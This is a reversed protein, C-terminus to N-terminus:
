TTIYEINQISYIRHSGYIDLSENNPNDRLNKYRAETGSGILYKTTYWICMSRNQITNDTTDCPYDLIINESPTKYYYLNSIEDRIESLNPIYTYQYFGYLDKILYWGPYNQTPNLTLQFYEPWLPVLHDSDSVFGGDVGNLIKNTTQTVELWNGIMNSYRSSQNSVCEQMENLEQSQLSGGGLFGHWIVNQYSKTLSSYSPDINEIFEDNFTYDQLKTIPYPNQFRSRYPIKELPMDYGTSYPIPTYSGDFFRDFIGDSVFISELWDKLINWNDISENNNELLLYTDEQTTIFSVTDTGSHGVWVSGRPERWNCKKIYKQDNYFTIQPYIPYNPQLQTNYTFGCAYSSNELQSQDINTSFYSDDLIAKNTSLDIGSIWPAPTKLGAFTGNPNVKYLGVGAPITFPNIIKYQKIQVQEEDTLEIPRDNDDVFEYIVYDSLINQTNEISRPKIKKYYTENNKGLFRITFTQRSKIPTYGIFHVCGLIHRKSIIFWPPHGNNWNHISLINDYFQVGNNREIFEWTWGANPNNTDILSPPSKFIKPPNNITIWDSYANIGWGYSGRMNHLPHEGINRGAGRQPADRGSFDPIIGNIPETFAICNPNFKIPTAQIKNGTIGCNNPFEESCNLDRDWFFIPENYNTARLKYPINWREGIEPIIHTSFINQLGEGEYLYVDHLEKNYNHVLGM